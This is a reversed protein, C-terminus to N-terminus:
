VIGFWVSISALSLEVFYRFVTTSKDDKSVVLINSWIWYLIVQVFLPGGIAVSNVLKWYRWQYEILM